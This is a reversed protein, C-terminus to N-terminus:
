KWLRQKKEKPAQETTDKQHAIDYAEYIQKDTESLTSPRVEDMLERSSVNKISDPLTKECNYNADFLAAIRNGMFRFTAVTTCKAPMVSRVGEKGLTIETRLTLMDFEGNLLTRIIRGTKTDVIAYGNLLQTNYNKPRFELRTTGDSQLKQTYRYFRRNVKNFPSLMHGDYLDIDYINPTMYDLLTPMTSRSITGAQVQSTIDYEHANNFKVKSYSERIYEREDKAMVYMSPILWLIPNRKEVNYRFKAYVQDEISDIAANNTQQYDYISNLILSDRKNAASVSITISILIM